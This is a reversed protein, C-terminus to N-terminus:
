AREQVAELAHRLNRHAAALTASVTGVQIGLAAAISDYDLDAYYRLFIALRQREPLAAILPALEPHAPPVEVREDVLPTAEVLPRRASKRAANIVAAWLWASLPADGRFSARRQLASAFADQVAERARERDGVIARAVRIYSDYRSAYLDEIQKFREDRM